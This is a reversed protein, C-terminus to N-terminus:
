QNTGNVEGELADGEAPSEQEQEEKPDNEENMESISVDDQPAAPRIMRRRPTLARSKQRNPLPAAPEIHAPASVAASLKQQEILPIEILGDRGAHRVQLLNDAIDAVLFEQDAGFSEGSKVLFLKGGSSLFVTKEGAKDLFGLFTFQSLAMNVEAVSVQQPQVPPPAVVTTAVPTPEPRPAKEAQRRGGFRFIDRKTGPFEESEVTMFDFNIREQGGKTKLEGRAKSASVDRKKAIRPPAKELRPTAFYAYLLCAALVGLLAALIVRKRNM